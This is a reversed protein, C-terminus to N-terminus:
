RSRGAPLLPRPDAAHALRVRLSTGGALSREFAAVHHWASGGAGPATPLADFLTANVMRGLPSLGVAASSSVHACEEVVETVTVSRRPAVGRERM